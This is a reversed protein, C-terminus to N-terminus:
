RRARPRGDKTQGRLVNAVDRYVFTPLRDGHAGLFRGVAPADKKALARLAWSIAKVVLDEKDDLLLEVVRLTRKADGSGGQSSVNLPVTAVVAARRWWRDPSETWREIEEDPVQGPRWALGAVYCSFADVASWSTLGKGLRELDEPTISALAAAHNQVLEYPVFRPVDDRTVLSVALEVVDRAPADALRASWARREERVAATPTGSLAPARAEIQARVDAVPDSASM